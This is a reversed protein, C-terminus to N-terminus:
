SRSAETEGELKRKQKEMVAELESIKKSDELMARHVTVQSYVRAGEEPSVAKFEAKCLAFLQSGNLVGLTSVTLPGFGKAELWAQVQAPSSDSDLPTSTDPARQVQFPKAPIARGAALRQLLEENVQSLREKETHDLCLGESGQCQIGNPTSVKKKPALLSPAKLDRSQGPSSSTSSTGNLQDGPSPLPHLINYPVYGQQGSHNQIKWWKKSDDLVELVEGQLVSLENSNRAVFDYSCSVFRGGETDRHGNAEIPPASQQARRAEHLHQAEVPDEWSQGDTGTRLPAWGSQFTPTYPAAYDRPFEVRPRTWDDGLSIWLETEPAGLCGRLLAIAEWTLMPSRIESAFEPGGSAEVLMKLPGFLFHVLEESTPNSINSQLRALLSFSYKIKALTDAYEEMPPPRARLSLLGEGPQRRRGRASRKLQELVQFAEASKQLKCVFAEIDDFVRNLLEVDRETRPEAPTPPASPHAMPTAPTIVVKRHRPPPPPRFGAGRPAPVENQMKEQNVRLAEKREANGGSKFDLLASNIDKQILEAGIHDCQFFHADPLIQQPEQCVLLLLSRTLAGPKVAECRQVAVLGYSELEEKSHVDLLRITMGTVQLLMEQAWVQGQADMTAVRRLADEVSRMEAAEGVPFTVLHNVTYQSVDTMVYNSYKKRQEYIERASPKSIDSGSSSM